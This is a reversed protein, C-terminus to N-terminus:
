TPVVTNDDPSPPPGASYEVLRMFETASQPRDAPDKELGKLLADGVPRPVKPNLDSPHPPPDQLHAWMIRMGVRDAFPPKGTLLESLM